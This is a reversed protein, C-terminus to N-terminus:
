WDQKLLPSFYEKISDSLIFLKNGKLVHFRDMCITESSDNSFHLVCKVRTDPENKYESSELELRNFLSEIQHIQISDTIELTQYNGFSSEFDSCPVSIITSINIDVHRISVFYIYPKLPDSKKPACDWLIFVIPIFKLWKRM